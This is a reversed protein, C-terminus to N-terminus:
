LPHRALFGLTVANFEEPFESFTLHGAGEFVHLEAGPIQEYVAQNYAPLTALDLTGLHDVDARTIQGLRGRSDHDLDADYHGVLGRAAPPNRFCCRRASSWCSRIRM